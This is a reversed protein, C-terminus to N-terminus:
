CSYVLNQASVHTLVLTVVTPSPGDALNETNPSEKSGCFLPTRTNKPPQLLLKSAM